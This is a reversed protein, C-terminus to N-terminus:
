VHARGIESELVYAGGEPKLYRLTKEPAFVLTIWLFVM